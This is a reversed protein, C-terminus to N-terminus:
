HYEHNIHHPVWFGNVLPITVSTIYKVAIALTGLVKFDMKVGPIWSVAM